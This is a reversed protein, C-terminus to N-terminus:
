STEAQYVAYEEGTRQFGAKQYLALSSLNGIQTNVTVNRAGRSAFQALMDRVLAFGIGQGQHQPLVALRALHGGSSTATSIQYGIIGSSNEAVTSVASETLGSQLGSRSNQWVISFAARDVNEVAQIDETVMRRIRIQPLHNETPLSDGSWLLIIVQDIQTFGSSELQTRFWVSLPIAAAFPRPVLIQLEQLAAPWLYKWAKEVPLAASVAFMRIWAVEPPDPPCALAAVIKRNQEAVWYPTLGIWDLPSRWDLHRHIYRESQVLNTLDLRDWKTVPRIIVQSTNVPM